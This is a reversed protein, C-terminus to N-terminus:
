TTPFKSLVSGGELASSRTRTCVSITVSRTLSSTVSPVVNPGSDQPVGPRPSSSGAGQRGLSAPSRSSRGPDPCLIM